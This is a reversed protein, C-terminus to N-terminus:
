LQAAPAMIAQWNPASKNLWGWADRIGDNEGLRLFELM